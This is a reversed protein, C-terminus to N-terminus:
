FKCTVCNVTNQHILRHNNVWAYIWLDPCLVTEDSWFHGELQGKTTLGERGVGVGLLRNEIGLTRGKGSHWIFPALCHMVKQFQTRERLSICKSKDMSHCTHITLAKKDQTTNQRMSIGGNIQRTIFMQTTKLKPGNPSNGSPGATLSKTNDRSHNPTVATVLKIGPLPVEVHQPYLWFLFFFFIPLKSYNPM